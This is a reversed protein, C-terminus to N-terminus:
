ARGPNQLSSGSCPLTRRRSCRAESQQCTECRVVAQWCRGIHLAAQEVNERSAQHEWLESHTGMNPAALPRNCQLSVLRVQYDAGLFSQIKKAKGPSEVLVVIKAATKSAARCQLLHWARGSCFTHLRGTWARSSIQIAQGTRCPANTGSLKMAGSSAATHSSLTGRQLVNVLDSRMEPTRKNLIICRQSPSLLIPRSRQCCTTPTM